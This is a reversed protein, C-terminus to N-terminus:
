KGHDNCLIGEVNLREVIQLGLQIANSDAVANDPKDAYDILNQDVGSGIRAAIITGIGASKLENMVRVRGNNPDSITGDTLMLVAEEKLRSRKAVEAIVELGPVAITGTGCSSPYKASKYKASIACKGYEIVLSALSDRVIDRCTDDMEFIPSPAVGDRPFLVGYIKTGSTSSPNFAAVLMQLVAM